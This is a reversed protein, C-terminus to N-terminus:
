KSIARRFRGKTVRLAGLKILLDQAAQLLCLYYLTYVLLVSYVCTICLLCLYYLTFVLLVSYVCTICLLCLYYLTFVLLVSYVCTICLLCLYYLTFVLLVSYVCTFSVLLSEDSPPTPFPFNIVKEIGM